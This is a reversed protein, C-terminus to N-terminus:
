IVLILSIGEANGSKSMMQGNEMIQIEKEKSEREKSEKEKSENEKSENERAKIENAETKQAEDRKKAEWGKIEDFSSFIYNYLNSNVNQLNPSAM